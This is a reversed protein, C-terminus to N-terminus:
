GVLGAIGTYPSDTPGDEKNFEWNIVDKKVLDGFYPSVIFQKLFAAPIKAWGAYDFADSDYKHPDAKPEMAGMGEMMMDMEGEEGGEMDGGEGGDEKKEAGEEKPEEAKAGDDTAIGSKEKLFECAAKLQAVADTSKYKNDVYQVKADAASGYEDEMEKLKESLAKYAKKYIETTITEDGAAMDGAVPLSDGVEKAKDFAWAVRDVPCLDFEHSEGGVFALGVTNLNSSNKNRKDFRSSACGM